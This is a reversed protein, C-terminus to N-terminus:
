NKKLFRKSKKGYIGRNKVRNFGSYIFFLMKMLFWNLINFNGTTSGTRSTLSHASLSLARTFRLAASREQHAKQQKAAMLHCEDITPLKLLHPHLQAYTLSSKGSGIPDPTSSPNPNPLPDFLNKQSLALFERQEEEELAKLARLDWEGSSM